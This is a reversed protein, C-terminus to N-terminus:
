MHELMWRYNFGFVRSSYDGGPAHVYMSFNDTHKGGFDLCIVKKSKKLTIPFHYQYKGNCQINITAPRGFIDTLKENCERKILTPHRPKKDGVVELTGTRGDDMKVTVGDIAKLLVTDANNVKRTKGWERNVANLKRKNEIYTRGLNVMEAVLEPMDVDNNIVWDYKFGMDRTNMTGKKHVYIKRDWLSLRIVHMDDGNMKFDYLSGHWRKKISIVDRGDFVQKIRENCERKIQAKSKGKKKPRKPMNNIATRYDLSGTTGDNFRIRVNKLVARIERERPSSRVTIRGTRIQGLRRNVSTVATTNAKYIHCIEKMEQLIEDYKM